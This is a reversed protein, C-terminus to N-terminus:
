HKRSYYLYFAGNVGLLVCATYALGYAVSVLDGPLHDKLTIILAAGVGAVPLCWRLTAAAAKDSLLNTREDCSVEKSKMQLNYIIGCALVITIIAALFNQTIVAWAMIAGQVATVVFVWIKVSKASM